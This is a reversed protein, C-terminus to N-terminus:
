ATAAEPPPPCTTLRELRHRAIAAGKHRFEEREVRGQQELGVGGAGATPPRAMECCNDTGLPSPMSSTSYVVSICFVRGLGGGGERRAEACCNDWTPAVLQIYVDCFTGLGGGRGAGGGEAGGGTRARREGIFLRALRGRVTRWVPGVARGHAEMVRGGAGVARVRGHGGCHSGWCLASLKALGARGEVGAARRHLWSPRSCTSLRVRAVLFDDCLAHATTLQIDDRCTSASVHGRRPAENPAGAKRVGWVWKRGSADCHCQQRNDWLPPGSRSQHVGGAHERVM